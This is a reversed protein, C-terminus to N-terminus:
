TRKKVRWRLPPDTPWEPGINKKSIRYTAGAENKVIRIPDGEADSKVDREVVKFFLTPDKVSQVIDGEELKGLGELSLYEWEEGSESGKSAERGGQTPVSEIALGASEDSLMDDLTEETRQQFEGTFEGTKKDVERLTYLWTDGRREPKETIVWQVPKHGPDKVQEASYKTSFVSGEMFKATDGGEAAERERKSLVLRPSKPGEM